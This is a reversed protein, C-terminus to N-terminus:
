RRAFRTRQLAPNPRGEERAVIGFLDLSVALWKPSHSPLIWSADENSPASITANDYMISFAEDATPVIVLSKSPDLALSDTRIRWEREWTFDVDAAPEYRAHRWRHSEPLPDYENDAQYIVPRGGRAFLWEKQVAIGYPEYRPGSEPTSIGSLRFLSAAEGIPAETFCVCPFRGRM